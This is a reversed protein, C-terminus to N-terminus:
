FPDHPRCRTLLSSVEPLDGYEMLRRVVADIRQRPRVSNVDASLDLAQHTVQAAQEPEGAELYAEVLWTLYLAKDRAHSDEYESLASELLPVARLPRRLETWCRGAMIQLENCDVWAAYDPAAHGSASNLATQAGDLARAAKDVMGATAYTWAGRDYLLAQVSPNQSEDALTLSQNTCEAARLHEGNGVLQYARFALANAALATEGAEIAALYSKKYLQSAPRHWGADFAAWGAQQMQESLVSHLEDRIASTYTSNRLLRVTYEADALYLHYTDAGGFTDDLKRLRAIRRRLKEIARAGVPSNTQTDSAPIGDLFGAMTVGTGLLVFERRFVPLEGDGNQSSSDTEEDFVVEALAEQPRKGPLSVAARRKAPPLPANLRRLIRQYVAQPRRVEGNEWKSILRTDVRTGRDEKNKYADNVIHDVLDQQSWHMVETRWRQLRGGWTEDPYFDSM